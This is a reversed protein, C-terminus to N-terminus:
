FCRFRNMIKMLSQSDKRIFCQFIIDDVAINMFQYEEWFKKNEALEYDGKFLPTIDGWPGDLIIIDPKRSLIYEGDGIEHGAWISNVRSANHAIYADTLGLMDIARLRSYYPIAGVPNLAVVTSPPVKDRLWLGIKRGIDSVRDAYVRRYDKRFNLQFLQFCICFILLFVVLGRVISNSKEWLSYIGHSFCLYVLPLIPTFFRYAPFVDGGVYIVNCTYIVIIALFYHIVPNKRDKNLLVGAITSIVFIHDIIFSATYKTGRIIHYASNDVKAYYTNPFLWGYYHFRWWFYPLYFIIFPISFCCVQILRKRSFNYQRMDSCLIFCASVVFGFIGEPRTLTALAFGFGALGILWLRRSPQAILLVSGTILATFLMTEMGSNAWVAFAGQSVFLINLLFFILPPFCVNKMLYRFMVAFVILSLIIGEIRATLVVNQKLKFGFAMLMVWLFNTYGEVQEGNNFVLGNGCVWNRAYRMSIFVDDLYWMRFCYLFYAFIFGSVIVTFIYHKNLIFRKMFSIIRKKTIKNIIKGYCMIFLFVFYVSLEAYAM